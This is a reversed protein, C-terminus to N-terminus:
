QLARRTTDIRRQGVASDYCVQDHMAARATSSREIDGCPFGFEDNAETAYQWAGSGVRYYLALKKSSPTAVFLEAIDYGASESATIPSDSADQSKIQLSGVTISQLKLGPHARAYATVFPQATAARDHVLQSSTCRVTVQYSTPSAASNCSDGNHTYIRVDAYGSDYGNTSQKKFGQQQLRGAIMNQITTVPMSPPQYVAPEDIFATNKPWILLQPSAEAFLTYTYGPAQQTGGQSSEAFWTRTHVRFEPLQPALSTQLSTLLGPLPSHSVTASQTRAHLGIYLLVGLLIIAIAVGLRPSRQKTM